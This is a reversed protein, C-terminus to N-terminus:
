ITGLYHGFYSLYSSFLPLKFSLRRCSVRLSHILFVQVFTKNTISKKQKLVITGQFSDSAGFMILVIRVPNGSREQCLIGFCYFLYWLIAVKGFSLLINWPRLINGIVM